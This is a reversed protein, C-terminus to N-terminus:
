HRSSGDENPAVLVGGIAEYSRHTATAAAELENVHHFHQEAEALEARTPLAVNDKFYWHSIRARLKRIGSHPAQVGNADTGTQIALPKYDIKGLITAKEELSLPAHIEIFEGHPLRLIRGTEYGHLLKERDRRQLSLCIRKTITFAIPPLVFILVRM